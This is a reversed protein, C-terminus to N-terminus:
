DEIRPACGGEATGTPAEGVSARCLRARSCAGMVVSGFVFGPVAANWRPAFGVESAIRSLGEYRSARRADEGAPERLTESISRERRLIERIKTMLTFSKPLTRTLSGENQM